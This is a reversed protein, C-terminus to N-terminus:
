ASPFGRPNFVAAGYAQTHWNPAPHGAGLLQEFAQLRRTLEDNKHAMNRNRRELQHIYETAKTLITGKSVKPAKSAPVPSDDDDEPISKLSPIAERLDAIRDKLNTRYKREIDNHAARDSNRPKAGPKEIHEGPTTTGSRPAAKAVSATRQKEVPHESTTESASSPSRHSKEFTFYDMTPPRQTSTNIPPLGTGMAIALLRQREPDQFVPSANVYSDMRLGPQPPEWSLPTSYLREPVVDLQQDGDRGSFDDDLAMAFAEEESSLAHDLASDSDVLDPLVPSFTPRYNDSHSLRPIRPAPQQMLDSARSQFETFRNLQAPEGMFIVGRPNEGLSV